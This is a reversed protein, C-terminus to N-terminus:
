KMGKRLTENIINSFSVSSSTEKVKKAQKIRLKKLNEDNLTVTVRKAM